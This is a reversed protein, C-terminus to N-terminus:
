AIMGHVFPKNLVPMMTRMLSHAKRTHSYTAKNSCLRSIIVIIQYKFQINIIKFLNGSTGIIIFNYCYICLTIAHSNRVFLFHTIIVTIIHIRVDYATCLYTNTNNIETYCLFVIIHMTECSYCFQECVAANQKCAIILLTAM